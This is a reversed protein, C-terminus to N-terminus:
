TSDKKLLEYGRKMIAKDLMGEKIGARREARTYRAYDARCDYVRCAYPVREHITCGGVGLYVCDGNDKIRLYKRGEPGEVTDYSHIDDGVEPMLMVPNKQCCLRCGGCPVTAPPRDLYIKGVAGGVLPKLFKM